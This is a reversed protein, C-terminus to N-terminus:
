HLGASIPDILLSGWRSTEYKKGEILVALGQVPRPGEFAQLFLQGTPSAAEVSAFCLLWLGFAKKIM